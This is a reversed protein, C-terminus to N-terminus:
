ISLSYPAPLLILGDCNAYIMVDHNLSTFLTKGANESFYGGYYPNIQFVVASLMTQNQISKSGNFTRYAPISTSAELKASSPIGNQIKINLCIYFQNAISIDKGLNEIPLRAMDDSLFINGSLIKITDQSIVYSWPGMNPSASFNQSSPKSFTPM